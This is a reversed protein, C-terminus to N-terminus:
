SVVVDEPWCFYEFRERGTLLTEMEFEDWNAGKIGVFTELEISWDPMKGEIGWDPDNGEICADPVNGDGKICDPVVGAEISCGPWNGDDIPCDPM